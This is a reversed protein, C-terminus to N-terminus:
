TMLVQGHSSHVKENQIQKQVLKGLGYIERALLQLIDDSSVLGYAKGAKDLVVLRRVGEGEMIDVISAIGKDASTTILNRSMFDEVKAKEPVAEEAISLAIDRDTLIGLPKKSDISDVVIVGGVHHKRMLQAAELLNATKEIFIPNQSCLDVVPM